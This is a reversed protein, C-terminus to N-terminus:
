KSLSSWLNYNYISSPSLSSAGIPFGMLYEANQVTPRGFVTVFNRCGLHKMMSPASYNAMTTPTHVFGFNDGYNSKIWTKNIEIIGMLESDNVTISDYNHNIHRNVLIRFVTAVVFPCQANGVAKLQERKNNVVMSNGTNEPKEAWWKPSIKPLSNIHEVLKNFVNKDRIALLWYRNRRHDAGIEGCSLGCLKVKYGIEELDSKAKTLAKVTVNEAFVIPAKSEKVFRFMEGWLNKEAINKGHAAHSFAQCPFGGCLVDFTGEFENGKLQTVDGYIPFENMWGDRQRQRLVEQCFPNVEVGACCKHGLIEGGYIGGGIGAFLHFEKIEINTNDM